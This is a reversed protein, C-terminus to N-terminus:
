FPKQIPTQFDIYLFFRNLFCIHLKIQSWILNAGYLSDTNINM